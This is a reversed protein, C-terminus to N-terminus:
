QRQFVVQRQQILFVLQPLHSRVPQVPQLVLLLFPGEINIVAEPVLNWQGKEIANLVSGNINRMWEENAYQQDIKQSYAALKKRAEKEDKAAQENGFYGGKFLKKQAEALYREGILMKNYMNDVSAGISSFMDKTKEMWGRKENRLRQTEQKSFEQDTPTVVQETTVDTLTQPENPALSVPEPMIPTVVQQRTVDTLSPMQQFKPMQTRGMPTMAQQGTMQTLSPGQAPQAPQLLTPVQVPRSPPQQAQPAQPAPENIYQEFFSDMNPVLGKSVMRQAVSTAAKEDSLLKSEFETFSYKKFTGATQPDTILARYIERRDKKETIEGM